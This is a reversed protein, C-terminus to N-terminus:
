EKITADVPDVTCTEDNFRYPQDAQLGLATFAEAREREVRDWVAKAQEQARVRELEQARFKWYEAATM